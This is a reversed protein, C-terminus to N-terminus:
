IKEGEFRQVRRAKKGAMESGRDHLVVAQAHQQPQERSRERGRAQSLQKAAKHVNCCVHSTIASVFHATAFTNVVAKWALKLEQFQGKEGGNESCGGTRAYEVAYELSLAEFRRTFPAPRKFVGAGDPVHQALGAGLAMLAM